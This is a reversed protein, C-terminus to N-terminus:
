AASSWFPLPMLSEEAPLSFGRFCGPAIQLWGLHWAQGEDNSMRPPVSPLYSGMLELTSHCWYRTTKVDLLPIADIICTSCVWFVYRTRRIGEHALPTLSIVRWIYSQCLLNWNPCLSAKWHLCLFADHMMKWFSWEAWGLCVQLLSTCCTGPICM